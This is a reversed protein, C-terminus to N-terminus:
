DKLLKNQRAKEAYIETDLKTSVIQSEKDILAKSEDTFEIGEIITNMVRLGSGALESLGITIEDNLQNIKAQIFRHDGIKAAGAGLLPSVKTILDRQVYDIIEQGTILGDESLIPPLKELLLKANMVKMKCCGFATLWLQAGRLQRDTYNVPNKGLGWRVELENASNFVYFRVECKKGFMKVLTNSENLRKKDGSVFQNVMKGDAYCLAVLGNEVEVTMDKKLKQVDVIWVFLDKQNSIKVSAM